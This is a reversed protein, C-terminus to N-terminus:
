DLFNLSHPNAHSNPSVEQSNQLVISLVAKPINPKNEELKIEKFYRPYKKFRFLCGMHFDNEVLQKTKHWVAGDSGNFRISKGDILDINGVPCLHNFTRFGDIKFGLPRLEFSVKKSDEFSNLRM